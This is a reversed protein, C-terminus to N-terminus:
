LSRATAPGAAAGPPTQRTANLFRSVRALNSGSNGRVRRRITPQELSITPKSPSSGWRAAKRLKLEHSATHRPSWKHLTKPIDPSFKNLEVRPRQDDCNRPEISLCPQDPAPGTLCSLDIKHRERQHLFWHIGNPHLKLAPAQNLLSSRAQGKLDCGISATPIRPPPQHQCLLDQRRWPNTKATCSHGTDGWQPFPWM